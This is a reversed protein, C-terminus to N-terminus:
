QIGGVASVFVDELSPALARVSDVAIGNKKLLQTLNKGSSSGKPKLVHIRDGFLQAEKEGMMDHMKERVERPNECVIEFVDFPFMTKISEPTDCTLLRGENMLAVRSSREAEDLYPTTVVITVGSRLLSSLIKWFDRRSVPDVGTTPEDLFIIEPTHILTCALALKQKMGGSLQAARRDRFPTLRTFQLLEERKKRYDRVKHIEAFFDINEDISLDGYLSFRQSLYGIHNKIEAKDNRIDLGLISITGETPPLVGCMMRITTTKGAGDPGVLSFIEGRNIALSLHDVAVVRKKNKEGFVKVLNDLVIAVKNTPNNTSM